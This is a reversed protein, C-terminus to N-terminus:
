SDSTEQDTSEGTPNVTEELVREKVTLIKYDSGYRKQVHKIKMHHNETAFVTREGAYGLILGKLEKYILENDTALTKAKNYEALLQDMEEDDLEVVEEEYGEIQPTIKNEVFFWFAPYIEEFASFLKFNPRVKYVHAKWEDYDWIAIRGHKPEAKPDWTKRMHWEIWMSHLTQIFYSEDIGMSLKRAVNRMAPAKIEWVYTGIGDPHAGIFPYEPHVLELQPFEIDEGGAEEVRRYYDDMVHPSYRAYAEPHNIYPDFHKRIYEVAHPEIANGRAMHHNSPDDFEVGIKKNFTKLLSDFDNARLIVAADGGGIYKSRDNLM